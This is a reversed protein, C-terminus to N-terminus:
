AQLAVGGPVTKILGELELEFLMTTLSQAELGTIVSLEDPHYSSVASLAQLIKRQEPSCALADVRSSFDQVPKATTMIGLPGKLEEVIQEPHHVLMAGSRILQHCGIAQDNHISGPVAFVERGQELAFRATILSGSKQSAEVVLTGLSMGSIIRNRRPFHTPHPPTDPPFESIIAGQQIIEEALRKHRRPYIYELGSGLVALTNGGASLAGQHAAGDIGIALGSTITFGQEHLKCAFQRANEIGQPTPKRSGVMAVQSTNLLSPNGKIFLLPPPSHIELLRQPYDTSFPFLLECEPKQRWQLISETCQDLKKDQLGRILKAAFSGSLKERLESDNAEIVALPSPFVALLSRLRNLGIGPVLSLRVWAEQNQETDICFSFCHQEAALESM